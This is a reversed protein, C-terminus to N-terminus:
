MELRMELPPGRPMPADLQLVGPSIPVNEM